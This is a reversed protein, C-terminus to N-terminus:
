GGVCSSFKIEKSVFVEKWGREEGCFVGYKTSLIRCLAHSSPRNLIDKQGTSM